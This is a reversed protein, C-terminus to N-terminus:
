QEPRNRRLLQNLRRRLEPDVGTEQLIREIRGRIAQISRLAGTNTQQLENEQSTEASEDNSRRMPVTPTRSIAEERPTLPIPLAAEEPTPRRLRFPRIRGGFLGPKGADKHETM